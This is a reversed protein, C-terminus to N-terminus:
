TLVAEAEGKALRDRLADLDVVGISPLTSDMEYIFDLAQQNSDMVRLRVRFIKIVTSVTFRFMPDNLGTLVVWGAKPHKGAKLTLFEKISPVSTVHTYDYIAHVLPVTARNMAEISEIDFAKLDDATVAGWTPTFSLHSDVLWNIKFSM